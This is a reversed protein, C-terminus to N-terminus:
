LKLLLAFKHHTRLQSIVPVIRIIRLAKKEQKKRNQYFLDNKDDLLPNCPLSHPLIKNVYRTTHFLM